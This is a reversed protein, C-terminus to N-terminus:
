RGGAVDIRTGNAVAVPRLTLYPMGDREGSGDLHLTGDSERHVNRALPWYIEALTM